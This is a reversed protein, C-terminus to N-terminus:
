IYFYFFCGLLHFATPCASNFRVLLTWLTSTCQNSSNPKCCSLIFQIRMAIPFIWLFYWSVINWRGKEVKIFNIIFEVQKLRAFEWGRNRRHIKIFLYQFLQLTKECYLELMFVKEVMKIEYYFFLISETIVIWAHQFIPPLIPKIWFVDSYPYTFSERM